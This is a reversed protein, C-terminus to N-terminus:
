NGGIKRLLNAVDTATLQTTFYHNPKDIGTGYPDAETARRAYNCGIRDEEGYSNVPCALHVYVGFDPASMTVEGGAANGGKNSRITRADKEIGLERAIRVMMALACKHWKDKNM